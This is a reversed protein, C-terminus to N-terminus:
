APAALEVNALSVLRLPNLPVIVSEPVIDGTTALPGVGDRLGALITSEGDPEPVEVRVIEM